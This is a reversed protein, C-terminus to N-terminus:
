ICFIYSFLYLFLLIAVLHIKMM